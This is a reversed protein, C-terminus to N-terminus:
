VMDDPKAALMKAWQAMGNAEQFTRPQVSQRLLWM